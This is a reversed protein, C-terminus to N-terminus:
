GFAHLGMSSLTDIVLSFRLPLLNSVHVHNYHNYTCLYCPHNWAINTKRLVSKRTRSALTNIRSVSINSM